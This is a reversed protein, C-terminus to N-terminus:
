DSFFNLFDVAAQAVKKEVRKLLSLHEKRKGELDKIQKIMKAKDEDMAGLYAVKAEDITRDLSEVIKSLEEREDTIKKLEAERRESKAKDWEM